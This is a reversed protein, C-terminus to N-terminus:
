LRKFVIEKNKLSRQTDLYQNQFGVQYNQKIILSNVNLHSCFSEDGILKPDLVNKSFEDFM